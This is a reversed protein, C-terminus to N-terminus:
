NTLLNIFNNTLLQKLESRNIQPVFEKLQTMQLGAYGCPNIDNFPALDMDINLALGHLTCGRKIHLGLSCIKKHDIYVGPAEAKAYSMIDYHALTQIVCKELCSVIDRIGIKRRRLDFLIYMIQQGPAHYTIQGGRDTAVIPIDSQHLLHEPKGVRGQTFVPYHEVLWIEDPTQENRNLTFDHMAQYTQMYPQTHLERIIINNAIM